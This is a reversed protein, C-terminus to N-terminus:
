AMLNKDVRKKFATNNNEYNRKSINLRITIKTTILQIYICIKHIYMTDVNM